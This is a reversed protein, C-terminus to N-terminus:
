TSSNWETQMNARILRKEAMADLTEQKLNM